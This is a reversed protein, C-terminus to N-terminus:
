HFKLKKKKLTDTPCCELIARIRIGSNSSYHSIAWTISKTNWYQWSPVHCSKRVSRKNIQLTRFSCICQSSDFVPRVRRNNLHTYFKIIPIYKFSNNLFLYWNLTFSPDLLFSNFNFEATWCKFTRNERDSPFGSTRAIWTLNISVICIHDISPPTWNVLHREIDASQNKLLHFKFLHFLFVQSNLQEFEKFSLYQFWLGFKHIHLSLTKWADLCFIITFFSQSAATKPLTGKAQVCRHLNIGVSPPKAIFSRKMVQIKLSVDM